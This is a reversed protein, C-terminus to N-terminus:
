SWIKKIIDKGVGKRQDGPQMPVVVCAGDILSGLTEDYGGDEVPKRIDDLSKNTAIFVPLTEDFRRRLILEIQTRTWSDGSKHREKGLEDLVFIDSRVLENLRESRQTAEQSSSFNRKLETDLQMSTTYYCSLSTERICHMVLMSLFMSKGCGNPGHLFIGAGNTIAEALNNQYKEIVREYVVKNHYIDDSTVHWFKKPVCAEYALTEHMWREKCPCICSSADGTKKATLVGEHDCKNALTRSLGEKFSKIEKKSRM